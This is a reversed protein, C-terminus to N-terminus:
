DTGPADNRVPGDDEGEKQENENEAPKAMYDTFENDLEVTWKEGFLEKVKECAERRPRMFTIINYGIQEDNQEAEGATLRERKIVNVNNVGFYTMSENVINHKLEYLPITNNQVHLDWVTTKINDMTGEDVMVVPEANEKKAWLMQATLLQSEPCEVISPQKLQELNLNITKDVGELKKSYFHVAHRSSAGLMDNRIIVFQGARLKKSVSGKDFRVEIETPEDNDNRGTVRVIPAAVLFGGKERYIAIQGREYLTLEIYRGSISEPLGSWKVMAVLMRKYMKTYFSWDAMSQAILYDTYNRLTKGM